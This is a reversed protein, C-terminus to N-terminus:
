IGFVMIDQVECNEYSYCVRLINDIFCRAKKM